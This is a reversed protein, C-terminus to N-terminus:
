VIGLRVRATWLWERKAARMTRLAVARLEDLGLEADSAGAKKLSAVLGQSRMLGVFREADGADHHHLDIERTFRFRGSTAMRELHGSKAWHRVGAHTNRVQELARARDHCANWAVEAEWVGTAPPWNYDCALFVGGPRLVRAVEAFTTQPEMWHLAQMCAVVDACHDTLGTAHSLGERYSVTDLKPATEAVRRMDASPEVGVVRRAHRAWYRTSLGTGSGLDIVLDPTTGLYSTAVCALAAPPSARQQDYLDAFGTFRDINAAFSGSSTSTSM